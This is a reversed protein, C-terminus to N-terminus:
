IYRNICTLESVLSFSLSFPTTDSIDIQMFIRKFTMWAGSAMRDNLSNLAEPGDMTRVRVRVSAQQAEEKTESVQLHHHIGYSGGQQFNTCAIYTSSFGTNKSTLKYFQFHYFPLFVMEVHKSPPGFFGTLLPTKSGKQM